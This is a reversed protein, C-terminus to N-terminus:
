RTTLQNIVACIVAVTFVVALVGLCTVTVRMAYRRNPADHDGGGCVSCASGDTPCFECM